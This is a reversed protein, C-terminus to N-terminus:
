FGEVQKRLCALVEAVLAPDKARKDTKTPVGVPMFYKGSIVASPAVTGAWLQNHAGVSRLRLTLRYGYPTPSFVVSTLTKFWGAGHRQIGSRILGPHLACSVLVDGHARAYHDSLIINGLKSAGYLRWPAMMKGWKKVLKDRAPGGVLSEFVVGRAPAQAHGTSSTHIVRTPAGSATHAATLAPLLLKTLLFHGTVNTGWQLDYGQATLQDTPSIMVGGNNFLVDLRSEQALFAEAARRVSALDALDLELFVACKQTERQLQTIAAAAKEPSRAALYVTANKLLLQKVTHYGIGSNGGTVIIIKGSLDPIDREPKFKCHAM